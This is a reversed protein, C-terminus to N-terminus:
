GEAGSVKAQNAPQIVAVLDARPAPPQAQGLNHMIDLEGFDTEVTDRRLWRHEIQSALAGDVLQMGDTSIGSRRLWSGLDELELLMQDFVSRTQPSISMLSFKM